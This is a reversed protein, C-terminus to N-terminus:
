KTVKWFRPAALITMAIGFAGTMLDFWMPMTGDMGAAWSGYAMGILFGGAGVLSYRFWDM